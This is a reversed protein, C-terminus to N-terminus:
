TEGSSDERHLGEQVPLQDDGGPDKKQKDLNENYEHRRKKLEQKKVVDEDLMKQINKIKALKEEAEKMIAFQQFTLKGLKKRKTFAAVYNSYEQEVQKIKWPKIKFTGLGTVIINPAKLSVVVKRLETWYYDTIAKVLEEDQGTIEATTAIHESAKKPNM